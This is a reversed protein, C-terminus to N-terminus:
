SQRLQMPCRRSSKETDRARFGVRKDCADGAAGDREVTPRSHNGDFPRFDDVAHHEGQDSAEDQSPHEGLRDLREEATHVADIRVAQEDDNLIQTSDRKRKEVTRLIALLEHGDGHEANGQRETARRGVRAAERHPDHDHARGGDREAGDDTALADDFGDTHVHHLELFVLTDGRIERGREGEQECAQRAHGDGRAM